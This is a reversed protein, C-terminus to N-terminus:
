KQSSRRLGEHVLWKWSNGHDRRMDTRRSKQSSAVIAFDQQGEIAALAEAGDLALWGDDDGDEKQDHGEGAPAEALGIIFELDGDMISGLLWLLLWVATPVRM